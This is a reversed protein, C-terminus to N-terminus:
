KVRFWTLKLPYLLFHLISLFYQHRRYVRWSTRMSLEYDLWPTHYHSRRETFIIVRLQSVLRHWYWTVAIMESSATLLIGSVKECCCFSYQLYGNPTWPHSFLTLLHPSFNNIKSSSTKILLWGHYISLGDNIKEARMLFGQSYLQSIGTDIVM